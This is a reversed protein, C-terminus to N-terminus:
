MMALNRLATYLRHKHDDSRDAYWSLKRQVHRSGFDGTNIYIQVAHQLYQDHHKLIQDAGGVYFGILRSKGEPMSADLFLPVGVNPSELM